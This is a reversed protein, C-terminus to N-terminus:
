DNPNGKTGTIFIPKFIRSANNSVAGNWLSNAQEPSLIRLAESLEDQAGFLVPRGGNAVHASRSLNMYKDYCENSCFPPEIPQGMCGCDFSNCCMQPKAIENKCNPGDCYYKKEEM